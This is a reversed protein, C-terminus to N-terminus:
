SWEQGQLSETAHHFGGEPEPINQGHSLVSQIETTHHGEQDFVEQEILIYSLEAM